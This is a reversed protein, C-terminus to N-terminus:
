AFLINGGVLLSITGVAAFVRRVNKINTLIEKNIWLIVLGFAFFVGMVGLIFAFIMSFDVPQGQLVGLTVLMGRVGGIGM